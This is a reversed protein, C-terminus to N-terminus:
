DSSANDYKNALEELEEDSLDAYKNTVTMGGSHEVNQKDVYLNAMQLLMKRDQHGKETLAYKYTANMVNGVKNMVMEKSTESVLSVFEDEKMLRYYTNKSIDAIECLQEVNKDFYQPNILVEFLKKGAKTLKYENSKTM